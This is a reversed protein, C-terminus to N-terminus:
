IYSSQFGGSPSTLCTILLVPHFSQTGKFYIVLIISFWLGNTWAHFGYDDELHGELPWNLFRQWISFILKWHFLLAVDHNEAALCAVYTTVLIILLGNIRAYKCLSMPLLEFLIISEREPGNSFSKKKRLHLTYTSIVYKSSHLVNNDGIETIVRVQALM